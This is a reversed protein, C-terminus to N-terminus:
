GAFILLKAQGPALLDMCFYPSLTRHHLVIRERLFIYSMLKAYLFVHPLDGNQARQADSVGFRRYTKQSENM